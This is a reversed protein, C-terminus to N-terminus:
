LRKAPTPTPRAGRGLRKIAEKADPLGATGTCVDTALKDTGYTFVLYRKGIKFPTACLNVFPYLDDTAGTYVTVTQEIRGKWAKEVKLIVEVGNKEVADSRKKSVVKGLFIATANCRQQALTLEGCTCASARGASIFTASLLLTMMILPNSNIRM